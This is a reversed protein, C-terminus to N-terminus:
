DVPTVGTCCDCDVSDNAPPSHGRGFKGRRGASKQWESADACAGALEASQSPLGTQLNQTNQPILLFWIIQSAQHKAQLGPVSCASRGKWVWRWRCALRPCWAPPPRCWRCVERSLKAQSSCDCSLRPVYATSGLFAHEPFFGSPSVSSLIAATTWM